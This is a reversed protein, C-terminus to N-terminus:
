LRLRATRLYTLSEDLRYGTLTLRAPGVVDTAVPLVALIALTAPSNYAHDLAYRPQAVISVSYAAFAHTM